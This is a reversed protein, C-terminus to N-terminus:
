RLLPIGLKKAVAEGIERGGSGYQRSICIITREMKKAGTKRKKEQGGRITVSIRFIYFRYKVNGIYRFLIASFLAVLNAM